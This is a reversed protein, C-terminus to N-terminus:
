LVGMLGLLWKSVWIFGGVTAFTITFVWLFGWVYPLWGNLWLIFKDVLKKM